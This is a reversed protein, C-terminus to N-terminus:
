TQEINIELEYGGTIDKVLNSVLDETLDMLDLYDAYAM